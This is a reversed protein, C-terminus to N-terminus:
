PTVTRQSYSIVKVCDEGQAEEDWIDQTRTGPGQADQPAEAGPSAEPGAGSHTACSPAFETPNMAHVQKDICCLRGRVEDDVDESGLSRWKRGLGPHGLRPPSSDFDELNQPCVACYFSWRSSIYSLICLFAGRRRARREGQHPIAGTPIFHRCCRWIRWCRQVSYGPWGQVQVGALVAAGAVRPANWFVGCIRLAGAFLPHM